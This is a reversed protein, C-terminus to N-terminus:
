PPSLIPGESPVLVPGAEVPVTRPQSVPVPSLRLGAAPNTAPPTLAPGLGGPPEPVVITPLGNSRYSPAPPFHPYNVPGKPLPRPFEGAAPVMEGGPFPVPQTGPLLPGPADVVAPAKGGPHGPVTGPGPPPGASAPSGVGAVSFVMLSTRAQWRVRVASDKRISESLAASAMPTLPRLRGLSRAAEVRVTVSPDHHLVHVLVPVIQPFAAGDFNRLEQVADSREYANRCSSAITILKQVREAPTPEPRRSGFLGSARVQASLGVLMMGLLLLRCWRM